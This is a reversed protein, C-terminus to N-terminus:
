LHNSIDPLSDPTIFIIGLDKTVEPWISLKPKRTVCLFCKDVNEGLNKFRYIYEALQGIGTRIQHHENKDNISKVELINIGNQSKWCLDVNPGSSVQFPKIQAEKLFKALASEMQKHSNFATNRKREGSKIYSDQAVGEISMPEIYDRYILEDDKKQINQKKLSFLGGGHSNFKDKLRANLVRNFSREPTKEFDVLLKKSIAQETIDRYHMPGKDSNAELIEEIIKIHTKNDFAMGTPNLESGRLEFLDKYADLMVELDKVLESEDPLNNVDYVRHYVFGSRYYGEGEHNSFEVKGSPFRDAYSPIELQCIRALNDIVEEWSKSGYRNKAEEFAQGIGFRIFNSNHPFGYVIYYGKSAGVTIEPNFIGIWADVNKVWGTMGASGKFKFNHYKAPTAKKILDTAEGRIYNALPHNTYPEKIASPLETIIKTLVDTLM